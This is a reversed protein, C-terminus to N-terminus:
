TVTGRLVGGTATCTLTGTVVGPQKGITFNPWNGTVIMGDQVAFKLKSVEAMVAKDIEVKAAKVAAAVIRREM